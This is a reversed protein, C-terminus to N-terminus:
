EENDNEGEEIETGTMMALYATDAENKRIKATNEADKSQLRRIIQDKKVINIM